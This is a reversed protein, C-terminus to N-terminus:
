PFGARSRTRTWCGCTGAPRPAATCPRRLLWHPPAHTLRV